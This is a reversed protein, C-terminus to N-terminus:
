IESRIPEQSILNGQALLASELNAVYIMRPILFLDIFQGVFLLGLTLVWILGTIWKGAYFRHMGCAGFFGLCWLLYAVAPSKGQGPVYGGTTARQAPMPTPTFQNGRQLPTQMTSIPTSSGNSILQVDTKIDTVHQYRRSTEKELARIVIRDLRVDTQVKQSPLPFRGLPLEGTLMEYMVVGLSYIDARHDVEQPREFQEPAMYHMTGIVQQPATLTYDLDSRALLKAIGFDAVKIRGKKDILINEPKIDRHVIGEEHAYALADCLQPVIALAEAPQMSGKRMIQRLNSGDVYEMIFYYMDGAQGSDYIMVINPHNLKALSRAEREFRQAFGHDRQPDHLLIKLAVMRDLSKQRAKYVVGMGGHGLIDLIELQPFLEAIDKPEPIANSKTQKITPNDSFSGSM